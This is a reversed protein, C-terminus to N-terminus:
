KGLVLRRISQYEDWANKLSEHERLENPTPGSLPMADLQAQRALIEREIDARTPVPPVYQGLGHNNYAQQNLATAQEMLVKEWETQTQHANQTNAGTLSGWLNSMM